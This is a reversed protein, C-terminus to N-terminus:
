YRMLAGSPGEWGMVRLPLECTMPQYDKLLYYLLTEVDYGLMGPHQLIGVMGTYLQRFTDLHERGYGYFVSCYQKFYNHGEEQRLDTKMGNWKNDWEYQLAKKFFLKDRNTENFLTTDYGDNIVYRGSMKFLYDFEQLEKGYYYLFDRVQISEGLSKNPHLRISQYDKFSCLQKMAVYHCKDFLLEFLNKYGEWNISADLVYVTAEPELCKITNVTILTQRYREDVSFVSRKPAYTLPADPDTEICSSVYFCKKTTM